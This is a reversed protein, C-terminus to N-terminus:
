KWKLGSMKLNYAKELTSWFLTLYACANCNLISGLRKYAPKSNDWAQSICSQHDKIRFWHVKIINHNKKRFLFISQSLNILNYCQTKTIACLLRSWPKFSLLSYLTTDNTISYILLLCSKLIVYFEVRGTSPWNYLSQDLWGIFIRLIWLRCTIKCLSLRQPPRVFRSLFRIAM